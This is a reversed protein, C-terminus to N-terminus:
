LLYFPQITKTKEDHSFRNFLLLFSPSIIANGEPFVTVTVGLTLARIYTNLHDSFTDTCKTKM